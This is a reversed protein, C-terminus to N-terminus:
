KGVQIENMSSNGQSMETVNLNLPAAKLSFQNYLPVRLRCSDKWNVTRNLTISSKLDGVSNQVVASLLSRLSSLVKLRWVSTTTHENIQVTLKRSGTDNLKSSILDLFGPLVVSQCQTATLKPCKEILVELVQLSTERVASNIHSMACALYRTVIEFSPAVQDENVATLISSLLKVALKRIDAECDLSLRSAAELFSSLHVAMTQPPYFAVLDNLGELASQRQWMNHHNLRTLLEKINLNGKSLIEHEGREKLQGKLVIKQVKFNTNTVNQGKPLLTQHSVKLKVKSKEKKLFKKHGSKVM